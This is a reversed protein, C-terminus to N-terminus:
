KGARVAAIEANIEDLTMDQVGNEKAEERLRYFANCGEELSVTTPASIEFPIRNESIVKKM